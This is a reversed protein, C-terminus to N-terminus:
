PRRELPDLARVCFPNPFMTSQILTKFLPFTLFAGVGLLLPDTHDSYSHLVSFPLVAARSGGKLPPCGGCGRGPSGARLRAPLGSARGPGPFGCSEPWSGTSRSGDYRREYSYARM